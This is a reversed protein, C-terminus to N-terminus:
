IFKFLNWMRGDSNFEVDINPINWLHIFMDVLGIWFIVVCNLVTYGDNV